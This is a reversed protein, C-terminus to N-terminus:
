HCSCHGITIAPPQMATDSCHANRLWQTSCMPLSLALHSSHLALMKAPWPTCGVSACSCGTLCGQLVWCKQIERMKAHRTRGQRPTRLWLGNMLHAPATADAQSRQLSSMPQASLGAQAVHLRSACCPQHLHLPEGSFLRASHLTPPCSVTPKCPCCYSKCAWEFCM